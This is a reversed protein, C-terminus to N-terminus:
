RASRPDSSAGIMALKSRRASRNSRIRTSPAPLGASVLRRSRSTALMPNARRAPTGTHRSPSMSRPPTIAASTPVRATSSASSAASITLKATLLNRPSGASNSSPTRSMSRRVPQGHRPTMGQHSAASRRGCSSATTSCPVPAGSLPPARTRTTTGSSDRMALKSSKSGSRRSGATSKLKTGGPAGSGRSASTTIRGPVM